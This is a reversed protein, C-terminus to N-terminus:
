PLHGWRKLDALTDAVTTRLPRFTVPLERRLKGNDFRPFRGVHTRLYSGIGQPRTYSSLRVLYDGLTSDLGLRPLRGAKDYGLERVLAVLERMTMTENACIYRGHASATEMAAVHVVAVDRVDVFGWALNMIGPYVGALLDVLVKNSVNLSPVLSPGIVMFPNVAVLDWAPHEREVFKWAEREALAKSFYYPNRAISSKTNWDAETLTRTRDPEDTIAAMSSTLVVRRVSPVAAAAELVHRTGAVAPEVLARAPDIVHISYPSASHIVWRAGHVAPGFAGPQLLDAQVLELREAGPLKRLLRAAEGDPQRVTGRVPYGRGLLAEVIHSAIFGTAGTVCVLPQADM